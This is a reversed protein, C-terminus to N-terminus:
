INFDGAVVIYNEKNKQLFEDFEESFTTKSEEGLRYVAVVLFTSDRNRQRARGAVCEFTEPTFGLDVKSCEFEDSFVIAVGGGRRGPRPEHIFNCNQPLLNSLVEDGESDPKLWTETIFFFHLNHSRILNIIINNERIIYKNISRVNLLAMNFERNEQDINENEQTQSVVEGSEDEEEESEDNESEEEQSEGGSSAPERLRKAACRTQDDGINM